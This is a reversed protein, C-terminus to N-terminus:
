MSFTAGVTSKSKARENDLPQRWQSCINRVAPASKLFKGSEMKWKGNEM